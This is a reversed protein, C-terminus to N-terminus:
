LFGCVCVGNVIYIEVRAEITALVNSNVNNDHYQNSCVRGGNREVELISRFTTKIRNM